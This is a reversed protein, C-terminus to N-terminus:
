TEAIKLHKKGFQNLIKLAIITSFVRYDQYKQPYYGILYVKAELPGALLM